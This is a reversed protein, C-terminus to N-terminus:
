HTGAVAERLARAQPDAPDLDLARDIDALAKDRHGLRAHALGKHLHGVPNDPDLGVCVAFALLADDVRGLALDCRGLHLRAWFSRPDRGVAREFETRALEPAGRRLHHAGLAVHEWASAPPTAASRRLDVEADAPRGLERALAARELYVGACPGLERDAETLVEIASQREATAQGPPALRIRLDSWVLAVDLLDARARDRVAPPLDAATLAFLDARRDWLRRGLRDAKALDAPATGDAVALARMVDAVAHLDGAAAARDARRLGRSLEAELGGRVPLGGVVALGRRFAGRAEAFRGRALEANGEDLAARAVERRHEVYGAAFGAAALLLALVGAAGLAHPRRRRWKRWREPLSRNRVGRLPLDALHRRLDDALAAANPYREGPDTKLCRAVVDSLGVSVGPNRSSLPSGAADPLGGALVEYLVVGLSYVDSRGDVRAPVTNGSRVADLASRQEPSLYAPTGGLWAPPPDGAAVPPRALHFDLLMPEGEATLLVNSPKVDMHVLHREHAFQLADALCAGFHAIVRAYNAAAWPPRLSLVEGAVTDKGAGSGVAAWLDTPTRDAPPIPGLRALTHALTAGGFFPMCLVRLRRAPDDHAAYLPVIHTHQLRALSLHEADARPTLKVVVPRDALAPQRALYVQGRRGRGLEALLHFEGLRDGVGPYDPEGEADLTDRLDLLVRLQAAWQPFRRLVEGSGDPEHRGRRLSVEEYILEAAAGPHDRLAPYAALYDETVPRDGEEWRRRMDAALRDALVNVETSSPVPNTLDSPM